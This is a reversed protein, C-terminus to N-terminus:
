ANGSASPSASAGRRGFGNTCGNPGAARIAISRAAVVGIDNPQGLATVCQGIALASSAVVQTQAFTTTAALTVTVTTPTPSATPSATPRASAGGRAGAQLLNGSLTVTDGSVATVTGYASAFNARQGGAGGGGPAGPAGQGGQPSMASGSPRGPRGSGGFGGGGFGGGGFGGGGFGVDAACTGTGSAPSITVNTATVGGGAPQGTAILCAGVAVAAKTATKQETIRTSSTFQVATQGEATRVQLTDGQLAATQGSVGPFRGGGQVGAGASAGGPGGPGGTVGQGGGQGATPASAQVSATGGGSSSSCAALAAVALPAALLLRVSPRDITRIM